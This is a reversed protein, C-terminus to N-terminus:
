VSMLVSASSVLTAALMLTAAAAMAYSFIKM